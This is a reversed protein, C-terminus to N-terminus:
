QDSPALPPYSFVNQIPEGFVESIEFALELSPAYKSAEIAIITQRSVGAAEALAKQTMEGNEFRLRRINNAIKRANKKRPAM